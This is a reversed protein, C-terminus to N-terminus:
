NIEHWGNYWFIDSAVSLHSDFIINAPQCCVNNTIEQIIYSFNSKRKVKYIILYLFVNFQKSKITNIYLM